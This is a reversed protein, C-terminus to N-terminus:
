GWRISSESPVERPKTLDQTHEEDEIAVSWETIELDVDEDYEGYYDHHGAIVVNGIVEVLIPEACIEIEPLVYDVNCHLFESFSEELWDLAPRYGPKLGLLLEPTRYFHIFQEEHSTTKDRWVRLMFHVVGSVSAGM